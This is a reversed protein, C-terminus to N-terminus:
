RQNGVEEQPGPDRGGNTREGLRRVQPEGPQRDAPADRREQNQRNEYWQDAQLGFFIGLAVVILEFFLTRYNGARMNSALRSFIPQM